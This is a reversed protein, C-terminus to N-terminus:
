ANTFNQMGKEYRPYNIMLLRNICVTVYQTFDDDNKNLRIKDGNEQCTLLM